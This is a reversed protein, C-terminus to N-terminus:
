QVADHKPELGAVEAADASYRYNLPEDQPALIQNGKSDVGLSKPTHCYPCSDVIETHLGQNHADAARIADYHALETENIAEGKLSRHLIKETHTHYFEPTQTVSGPACHLSNAAKFKEMNTM